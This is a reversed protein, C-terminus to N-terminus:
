VCKPSPLYTETCWAKAPVRTEMTKIDVETGPSSHGSHVSATLDCLGRSMEMPADIPEAQQQKRGRGCASSSIRPCPAPRRPGPNLKGEAQKKRHQIGVVAM